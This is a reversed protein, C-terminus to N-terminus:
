LLIAEECEIDLAISSIARGLQQVVQGPISPSTISMRGSVVDLFYIEGGQLNSQGSVLLWNSQTFVEDTVVNNTAGPATDESMFGAANRTDDSANALWVGSGSPHIAVPQGRFITFLEKNQASFYGAGLQEAGEPKPVGVKRGRRSRKLAHGPM